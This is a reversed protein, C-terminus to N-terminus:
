KKGGGSRAKFSGEFGPRKVKAKKGAGGKKSTGGKKGGGGKEERRKAINDQRKRQRAEQSKAVGEVRGQWEKESKKKSGEQRKLAKKLLSTDDKVREGHAKKRANLWVDKQEIDARKSEDLGSLRSSKNQAAKLATTPDSAGKKKPQPVLSSLSSDAQTGDGFAVRGFSFNNSPEMPSRPSAILSGSGGPSFRKVVEEEQKRLEEEKAKRRLEKKHARREEEKRRRSELLEQRNRPPRGDPGDAKRQARLFNIRAELRQQPTLNFHDTQTTHPPALESINTNSISPKDSAHISPAQISSISSSTSHQQPSQIPSSIEPSPSATSQGDNTPRTNKGDIDVVEVMELDDEENYIRGVGHQHGRDQEESKGAEKQAKKREAKQQAKLKKVQNRQRKAAKQEAKKRKRDEVSTRTPNEDVTGEVTSKPVDTKRRKEERDHLKLGERQRETMGDDEKENDEERKRKLAAAAREDIVDKASKANDPDLKAM